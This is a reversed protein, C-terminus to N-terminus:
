RIKALKQANEVREVAAARSQPVIEILEFLCQLFTGELLEETEHSAIPDIDEEVRSAKEEETVPNTKALKRDRLRNNWNPNDPHKLNKPEVPEGRLNYIEKDQDNNDLSIECYNLPKTQNNRRRSDGIKNREVEETSETKWYAIKNKKEKYWDAAVEKLYGSAIQLRRDGNWNNAEATREFDDFWEIPDEN